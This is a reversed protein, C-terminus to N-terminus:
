RVGGFRYKGPEEKDFMGAKFLNNIVDRLELCKVWPICETLEETTDDDCACPGKTLMVLVGGQITASIDGCEFVKLPGKALIGDIHKKLEPLNDAEFNVQHGAPDEAQYWWLLNDGLREWQKGSRDKWNLKFIQFGKYPKLDIRRVDAM